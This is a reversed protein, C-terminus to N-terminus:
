LASWGRRPFPYFCFLCKMTVLLHTNYQHEIANLLNKILSKIFPDMRNDTSFIIM